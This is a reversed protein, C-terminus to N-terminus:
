SEELMHNVPYCSKELFTDSLLRQVIGPFSQGVVSSEIDVFLGIALDCLPLIFLHPIM